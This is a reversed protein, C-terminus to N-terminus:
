PHLVGDVFYCMTHGPFLVLAVPHDDDVLATIGSSSGAPFHKETRIRSASSNFVKIM